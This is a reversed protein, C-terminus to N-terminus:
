ATPPKIKAVETQVAAAIKGEQNKLEAGVSNGHLHAKIEIYVFIGILALVAGVLVVAEPTTIAILMTM